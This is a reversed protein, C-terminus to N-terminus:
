LPLGADDCKDPNTQCYVVNAAAGGAASTVVDGGTLIAAGAGAGAGIIAQEAATDGCAALALLLTAAISTKIPM